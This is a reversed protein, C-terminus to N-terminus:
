KSWPMKVPATVYKQAKTAAGEISSAFSLFNKLAAEDTSNKKLIDLSKKAESVWATISAIANGAKRLDEMDAAQVPSPNSGVVSQYDEMSLTRGDSCLENLKEAVTHLDMDTKADERAYEMLRILLPIDVCVKDAPNTAARSLFSAESEPTKGERLKKLDDSSIKGDNNVDLQKQKPTLPKM